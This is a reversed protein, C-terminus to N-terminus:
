KIGLAELVKETRSMDGILKREPPPNLKVLMPLAVIQRARAQEKEKYVDIIELTYDDPIHKECIAKVNAIARVSNPTAGTIYLQLVYSKSRSTGGGEDPMIKSNTM